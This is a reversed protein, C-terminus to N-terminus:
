KILNRFFASQAPTVNGGLFWSVFNEAATGRLSANKIKDPTPNIGAKLEDDSFDYIFFHGIEYLLTYEFVKLPIDKNLYITYTPNQGRLIEQIYCGRLPDYGAPQRCSANITENSLVKIKLESISKASAFPAFLIGLLAISLFTYTKIKM